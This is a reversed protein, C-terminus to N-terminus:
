FNSTLQELMVRDQNDYPDLASLQESLLFNFYSHGPRTQRIADAAFHAALYRFGKVRSALVALQDGFSQSSEATLAYSDEADVLRDVNDATLPLRMLEPHLDEFRNMMKSMRLFINDRISRHFVGITLLGPFSASVTSTPGPM